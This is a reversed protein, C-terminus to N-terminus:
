SIKAVFYASDFSSQKGLFPRWKESHSLPESAVSSFDGTTVLETWKIVLELFKGYNHEAPLNGDVYCVCGSMLCSSLLMQSRQLSLFHLTILTARFVAIFSSGPQSSKAWMDEWSYCWVIVSM